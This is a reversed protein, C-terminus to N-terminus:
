DTLWSTPSGELNVHELQQLGGGVVLLSELM